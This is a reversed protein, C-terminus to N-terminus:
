RTVVELHTKFEALELWQDAATGYSWTDHTCLPLSDPIGKTHKLPHFEAV